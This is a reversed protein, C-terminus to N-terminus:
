RTFNIYVRDFGTQRVVLKIHICAANYEGFFLNRRSDPITGTYAFIVHYVRVVRVYWCGYMSRGYTSYSKSTAQLECSPATMEM